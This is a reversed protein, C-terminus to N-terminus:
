DVLDIEKYGTRLAYGYGLYPIGSQKFRNTSYEDGYVNVADYGGPSNEGTPSQATKEYNTAEWDYASMAFLNFKYAFKDEGKKNKFVEAYRVAVETLRREGRKMSVSLGPFQFPSKTQMNIVGNFANPGYFASSAGVILDVKLVDLDSAGLFNGLSFNLGPSQNDVWDIIQLSRV